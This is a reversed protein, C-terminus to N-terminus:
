SGGPPRKFIEQLLGGKLKLQALRAVDLQYRPDSFTGRVKFPLLVRSQEDVPLAGTLFGLVGREPADLVAEPMLAAIADLQLEEEFSFGGTGTLRFDPTRVMLDATRLWGESIQVSASMQEIPTDEREVRLGAAESILALERGLTIGALRGQTVEVRAQGRTSRVFGQESAEAQVRLSGSLRGFVKDSHSTHASLLQNLDVDVLEAQLDISVPSRATKVTLTGTARGEHLNMQIPRFRLTGGDLIVGSTIPGLQLDGKVLHAVTLDGKGRASRLAMPYQNQSPKSVSRESTSTLHSMLATWDLRNGRFDFTLHPTQLDKLVAVLRFEGEGVAIGEAITEIRDPQFSAQLSGIQLPDAGEAVQCRLDSLAASGTPKWDGLPALKQGEIIHIDLEGELRSTEELLELQLSGNLHSVSASLTPFGLVAELDQATMDALVMTAALTIEGKGAPLGLRGDVRVSGFEGVRFQFEVPFPKSGLDTVSAELSTLRVPDRGPRQIVVTGGRLYWDWLPPAESHEVPNQGESAVSGAPTSWLNWEGSSYQRLYITPEIVQFRQVAPESGFLAGLNLDAELSRATFLVNETTGPAEGVEVGLLRLRPPLFDIEVDEVRLPRGLRSSLQQLVVEQFSSGDFGIWLVLFASGLILLLLGPLIALWM